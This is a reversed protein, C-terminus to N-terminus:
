ILQELYKDSGKYSKFIIPGTILDKFRKFTDNDCTGSENIYVLLHVNEDYRMM